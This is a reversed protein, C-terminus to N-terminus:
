LGADRALESMGPARAVVGLAHTIGPLDGHHLAENLYAAIAEESDLVAASDYSITELPM